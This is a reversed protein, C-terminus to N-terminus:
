HTSSVHQYSPEDVAQNTKIHKDCTILTFCIFSASFMISQKKLILKKFFMICILAIFALINFHIHSNAM